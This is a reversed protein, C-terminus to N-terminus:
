REILVASNNPINRASAAHAGPAYLAIGITLLLAALALLAFVAARQIWRDTRSETIM